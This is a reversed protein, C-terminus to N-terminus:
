RSWCRRTAPRPCLLPRAARTATSRSCSHTSPGDAALLEATKAAWKPRLSPPLACFFTYDFIADFPQDPRYKFFDACVFAMAARNAAGEVRKEAHAVASSSIDLGTAQRGNSAFAEVDYGTGCGPVLVSRIAPPLHLPSGEGAAVMAAVAPTVGGLDWPTTSAQWAKDWGGVPDEALLKRVCNLGPASKPAGTAADVAGETATPAHQPM